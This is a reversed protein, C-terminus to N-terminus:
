PCATVVQTRTLALPCRRCRACPMGRQAGHTIAVICGTLAILVTWYLWSGCEAVTSHRLLAASLIACWVACLQLIARGPTSPALTEDSTGATDASEDAVASGKSAAAGDTETDSASQQAFYESEEAYLKLFKRTTRHTTIILFLALLIAIIWRPTMRNLLVGYVTGLLTPPVLMLTTDFDILPREPRLAHRKRWNLALQCVASGLITIKSMPIAGHPGIDESIMLLPVLVTGGGIGGAASITVVLAVLAMSQYSLADDGLSESPESLAVAVAADTATANTANSSALASSLLVPSLTAILLLPASSPRM